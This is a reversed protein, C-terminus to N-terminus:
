SAEPHGNAIASQFAANSGSINDLYALSWGHGNHADAFTGMYAIAEQFKGDASAFQGAEFLAWGEATIAAAVGPDPPATGDDGGCGTLALVGALLAALAAMWPMAAGLPQSEQVHRRRENTM